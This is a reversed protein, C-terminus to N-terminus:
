SPPCLPVAPDVRQQLDPQGPRPQNWFTNSPSFLGSVDTDGNARRLLHYYYGRTSNGAQMPDLVYCDVVVSASLQDGMRQDPDFSYIKPGVGTMAQYDSFTDPYGPYSYQRVEVHESGPLLVAKGIHSAASSTTTPHNTHTTTATKDVSTEGTCAALSALSAVVAGVKAAVRGTRRRMTLPNQESIPEQVPSASANFRLKDHTM